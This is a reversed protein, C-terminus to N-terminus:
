GPSSPAKNHTLESRGQVFFGSLFSFHWRFRLPVPGRFSLVTAWICPNSRIACHAGIHVTHVGVGDAASAQKSNSSDRLIKRKLDQGWKDPLFGRCKTTGWCEEAAHRTKKMVAHIVLFTLFRRHVACSLADIISYPTLKPHPWIQVWESEYILLLNKILCWKTGARKCAVGQAHVSYWM